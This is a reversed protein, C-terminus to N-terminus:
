PPFCWVPKQVQRAWGAFAALRVDRSGPPIDFAPTQPTIAASEPEMKLTDAPAAEQKCNDAEAAGDCGHDLSASLTTTKEALPEPPAVESTRTLIGAEAARQRIARLKDRIRSLPLAAAPNHLPLHNVDDDTEEEQEAQPEPQVSENSVTETIAAAPAPKLSPETWDMAFGWAEAANGPLTQPTTDIEVVGPAQEVCTELPALQAVLAKIRDADIWSVQMDMSRKVNM